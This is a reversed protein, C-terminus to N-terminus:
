ISRILLTSVVINLLIYIVPHASALHSVRPSAASKDDSGGDVNTKQKSNRSSDDDDEETGNRNTTNGDELTRNQLKAALMGIDDKLLCMYPITKNTRPDYFGSADLLM